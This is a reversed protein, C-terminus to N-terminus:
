EPSTSAFRKRYERTPELGTAGAMQFVGIGTKDTVGCVRSAPERGGVATEEAGIQRSANAANLAYLLQSHARSSTLPLALGRATALVRCDDGSLFVRGLKARGAERAAQSSM